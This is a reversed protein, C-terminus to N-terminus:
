MARGTAQEQVEYDEGILEEEKISLLLEGRHECFLGHYKNWVVRQGPKVQDSCKAGISLITGYLTTVEDKATDPIIIGGESKEPKIDPRIIVRDNLARLISNRQPRSHKTQVLAAEEFADVPM